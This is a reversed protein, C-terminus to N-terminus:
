RDSSRAVAVLHVATRGKVESIFVAMQDREVWMAQDSLPTVAWGAQSLHLKYWELGRFGKPCEYAVTTGTGSSVVLARRSRPPRPLFPIDGGAVDGRTRVPATVSCQITQVQQDSGVVMRAFGKKGNVTIPKKHSSLSRTREERVAGEGVSAVGVLGVAAMGLLGKRLRSATVPRGGGRVEM